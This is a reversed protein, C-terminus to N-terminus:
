LNFFKSTSSMLLLLIILIMVLITFTSTPAQKIDKMILDYFDVFLCPIVFLVNIIFTLFSNRDQDEKYKDKRMSYILSLCLSMLTVTIIVSKTSTHILLSKTINYLVFFILYMVLLYGIGYMIEIAYLPLIILDIEESKYISYLFLSFFLIFIWTFLFTIPLTSTINYPNFLYSYFLVSFFVILFIAFMFDDFRKIIYEFFDTLKNNFKEGSVKINETYKQLKSEIKEDISM